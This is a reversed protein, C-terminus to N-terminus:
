WSEDQIHRCPMWVYTVYVHHSHMVSYGVTPHDSDLPIRHTLSSVDSPHDDYPQVADADYMRWVNMVMHMLCIWIWRHNSHDVSVCYYYCYGSEVIVEYVAPCVANIMMVYYVSSCCYQMVTASGAVSLVADQYYAHIWRQV